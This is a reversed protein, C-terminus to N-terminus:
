PMCIFLLREFYTWSMLDKAVKKEEFITCVYLYLICECTYLNNYFWFEGGTKILLDNRKTTWAFGSQWLVNFEWNTPFVQVKKKYLNNATFAFHTIATSWAFTTVFFRFIIMFICTDNPSQFSKSNVHFQDFQITKEGKLYNIISFKWANLTICAMRPLVPKTNSLPIASCWQRHSLFWGSHGSLNVLTTSLNAM